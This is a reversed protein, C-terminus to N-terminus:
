MGSPRFGSPIEAELDAQPSLFAPAVSKEFYRDITEDLQKARCADYLNNLKSKELNSLYDMRRSLEDLDTGFRSALAERLLEINKTIRGERLVDRLELGDSIFGAILRSATEQSSDYTPDYSERIISLTDYKLIGEELSMGFKDITERDVKGDLSVSLKEIQESLGRRIILNEGDIEYGRLYEDIIGLTERTIGAMSDPNNSDFYHPLAVVREISDIHFDTGNFSISPASAGIPGNIPEKKDTICDTLERKIISDPREYIISNKLRKSIIYKTSLIAEEVTDKYAPGYYDIISDAMVALDQAFGEDYGHREMLRDKYDSLLERSM